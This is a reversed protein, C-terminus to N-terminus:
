RPKHRARALADAARVLALHSFAQPTNGAQRKGAIDYEESLMGVDNVLNCLRDMLARADHLRATAAYQEVLWFSCALFPSEEGALGDVGSANRYRRLLGDQLLDNEIQAVTALMREDDPACFGVQPLLLLSADVETTGYYQTFHGDAVGHEDIEAKVRDRLERWKEVPGELDHDEVARVARDFTAWVMVRSHTFMHPEGRIEWLGNDPRDLQEAAQAVLGKELPWSFESEDLGAERAASLTVLVEGIVDAQYQLAAGNGIRVPKSGAYGPLSALEREVLDREGALGYMIQLDAPDGAVARLLWERWQAAVKVFGHDLLAELTLAADRLWVYRYDWNRVGGFDEPLSTTVAAAIGGTVHNTLARLILLSRVVTDRHPGDHVIKDAWDQWWRRTRDVVEDVDIREPPEHHSPFWTLTLDVSQGAAVAIKGRHAHGAATARAGRLVVADPGAMAVLEPSEATGTQRVWPMARAYDFRMRLEHDFEVLGKVGVVRRVIDVRDEAISGHKGIPMVDRVEAVGSSTEWRTVLIFTDDDYARTATAKADVPRLSWCGQEEDGLLAGFISGSDLRPVCLWDISGDRSVLAATRCNSLLAYDEIPVSM